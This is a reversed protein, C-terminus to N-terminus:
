YIGWLWLLDEAEDWMLRELWVELTKKELNYM